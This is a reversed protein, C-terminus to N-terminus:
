MDELEEDNLLKCSFAVRYNLLKVKIEEYEKKEKKDDVKVIM